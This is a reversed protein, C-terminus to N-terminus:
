LHGDHDEAFDELAEKIMSKHDRDVLERDIKRRFFKRREKYQENDAGPLNRRDVTGRRDAHWQGLEDQWQGHRHEVSM